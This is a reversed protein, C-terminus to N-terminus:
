IFSTWAGNEYGQFKNLTSNYIIMGNVATLADRQTTNMRSILIAKNGSTLDFLASTAPSTTGFGVSGDRFCIGVGDGGNAYINVETFTGVAYAIPTGNSKFDNNAVTGYLATDGASHLAFGTHCNRITNGAISFYRCDGDLMIGEFHSTGYVVNGTVAFGYANAIYIPPEYDTAGTTLRIANDAIVLNSVCGASVGTAHIAGLITGPAVNTLVDDIQNDTVVCDWVHGFM